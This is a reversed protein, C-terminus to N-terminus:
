EDEECEEGRALAVQCLMDDYDGWDCLSDIEALLMDLYEVCKQAAEQKEREAKYEEYQEEAFTWQANCSVDKLEPM